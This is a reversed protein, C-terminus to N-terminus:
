GRNTTAAMLKSMPMPSWCSRVNNPFYPEAIKMKENLIMRRETSDLMYMLLYSSSNLSKSTACSSLMMSSFFDMLYSLYIPAM